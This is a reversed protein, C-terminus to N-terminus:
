HPPAKQLAVINALDFTADANVDGSIEPEAATATPFIMSGGLVAALLSALISTYKM